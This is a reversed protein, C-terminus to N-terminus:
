ERARKRACWPPYWSLSLFSFSIRLFSAARVRGGSTFHNPSKFADIERTELRSSSKSISMGSTRESRRYLSIVARQRELSFNKVRCCRGVNTGKSAARRQMEHGGRRRQRRVRTSHLFLAPPMSCEREMRNPEIWNVGSKSSFSLPPDLLEHAEKSHKM